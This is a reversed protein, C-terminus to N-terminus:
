KLKGGKIDALWVQSLQSIAIKSMGKYRITYISKKLVDLGKTRKSKRFLADKKTKTKKGTWSLVWTGIVEAVRTM